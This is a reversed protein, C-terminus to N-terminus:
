FLSDQDHKETVIKIESLIETMEDLEKSAKTIQNDFKALTNKLREKILNEATIRHSFAVEIVKRQDKVLENFIAILSKLILLKM